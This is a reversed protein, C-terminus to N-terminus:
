IIGCRGALVNCYQLKIFQLNLDKRDSNSSENIIMNSKNMLFRNIYLIIFFEPM